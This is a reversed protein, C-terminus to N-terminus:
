ERALSIAASLIDEPSASFGEFVFKNRAKWLSWLIWPFLSGNAIGAPPLCKESVLASWGSKSTYEGTKTGLWVLKDPAGTLSPKLCLITTEYAPLLTRIKTMDWNSEGAVM